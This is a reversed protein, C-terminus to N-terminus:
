AGGLKREAELRYANGTTTRGRLIDEHFVERVHAELVAVVYSNRDVGRAMAFADLAQALDFPCMGRLEVKDASM